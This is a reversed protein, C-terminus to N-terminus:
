KKKRSPRPKIMGGSNLMKKFKMMGSVKDVTAAKRPAAKKAKPKMTKSPKAAPTKKVVKKKGQQKAM